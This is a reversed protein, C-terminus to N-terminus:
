SNEKDGSYPQKILLQVLPLRLKWDGEEFCFPLGNRRIAGTEKKMQRLMQFVVEVKKVLRNRKGRPYQVQTKWRGRRKGTPEQLARVTGPLESARDQEMLTVQLPQERVKVLKVIVM